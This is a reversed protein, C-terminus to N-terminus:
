LTGSEAITLTMIVAVIIVIHALNKGVKRQFKQSRDLWLDYLLVSTLFTLVALLGLRYLQLPNYTPQRISTTTDGLLSEDTNSLEENNAEVSKITATEKQPNSGAVTDSSKNTSLSNNTVESHLANEEDVTAATIYPKAFLQVILVTPIGELEGEVVAVGTQTYQEHLINAKHTPSDMWADIMSATSSFNKALNEGAITYKYGTEDIFRWPETGEPTNHSWYQRALMDTAKAQAAEALRQNQEFPPLGALRRENNVAQIVQTTAISTRYGLVQHLQPIHLAGLLILNWIATILALTFFGRSKLLVPRHKNGKHPLLWYQLRSNM